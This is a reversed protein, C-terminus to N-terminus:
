VSMAYSIAKTHMQHPCTLADAVLLDNEFAFFMAVCLFAVYFLFKIYRMMKRPSVELQTANESQLKDEFTSTSQANHETNNEQSATSPVTTGPGNRHGNFIQVM